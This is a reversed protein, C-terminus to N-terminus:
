QFEGSIFEVYLHIQVTWFQKWPDVVWGYLVTHKESQSALILSPVVIYREMKWICKVIFPHRFVFSSCKFCTHFIVWMNVEMGAGPVWDDKVYSLDFDRNIHFVKVEKEEGKLLHIREGFVFPHPLKQNLYYLQPHPYLEVWNYHKGLM